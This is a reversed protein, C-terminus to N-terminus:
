HMRSQAFLETNLARGQVCTVSALRSKARCSAENDAKHTVAVGQRVTSVTYWDYANFSPQSQILGTKFLLLGVVTLLAIGGMVLRAHREIRFLLPPM